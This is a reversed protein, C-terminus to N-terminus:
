ANLMMAWEIYFRHVFTIPLGQAMSDLLSTFIRNDIADSFVYNTTTGMEPSPYRM